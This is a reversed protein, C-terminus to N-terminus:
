ASPQWTLWFLVTGVVFWPVFDVAVNDDVDDVDDDDDVDDVDDVVDDDDDEDDDDGEGSWKSENLTNKSQVQTM